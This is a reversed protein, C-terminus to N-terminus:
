NAGFEVFFGDRKGKLCFIVLLDQFLQAQSSMFNNACFSAFSGGLDNPNDNVYQAITDRIGVLLDFCAIVPHRKLQNM